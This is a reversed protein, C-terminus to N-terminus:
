LRLGARGDAQPREEGRAVAPHGAQPASRRRGERHGPRLAGPLMVIGKGDFTLVLPVDDPAPAPRARQLYFADVHLPRRPRALQELQRKGIRVGTARTIAAGAAEM